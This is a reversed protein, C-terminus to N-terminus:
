ATLVKAYNLGGLSVYFAAKTVALTHAANASGNDIKGGVPPYVLVSTDDDYNVVTVVDGVALDAPLRVGNTTATAATVLNFAATLATADAQSSDGAATVALNKSMSGPWGGMRVVDRELRM